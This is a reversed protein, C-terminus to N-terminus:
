GRVAAFRDSFACRMPASALRRVLRPGGGGPSPSDRGCACERAPRRSRSSGAPAVRRNRWHRPSRWIPRRRWNRRPRRTNRPFSDPRDSDAIGGLDFQHAVACITRPWTSLMERAILTAFACGFPCPTAVTLGIKVQTRSACLIGTRMWISWTGFADNQDGPHGCGHM